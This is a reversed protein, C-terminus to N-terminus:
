PGNEARAYLATGVKQNPVGLWAKPCYPAKSLILLPTKSGSPAALLM